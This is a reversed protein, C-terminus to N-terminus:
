RLILTQLTFTRSLSVEHNIKNLIDNEITMSKMTIALCLFLSVQLYSNGAPDDLIIHVDM